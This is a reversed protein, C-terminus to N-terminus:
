NNKLKITGEIPYFRGDAWCVMGSVKMKDFDSLLTVFTKDAEYWATMVTHEDIHITRTKEHAEKPKSDDRWFLTSDSSITIFIDAGAFSYVLGKGIIDKYVPKSQSFTTVPILLCLLFLYKKM